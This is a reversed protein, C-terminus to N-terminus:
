SAKPAETDDTAENTSTDVLDNFTSQVDQILSRIYVTVKTLGTTEDTQAEVTIAAPTTSSITEEAKVRDALVMLLLVALAIYVFKKCFVAVKDFMDM